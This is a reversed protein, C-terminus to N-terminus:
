TALVTKPGDRKGRQSKDGPTNLQIRIRYSSGGISSRYVFLCCRGVCVNSRNDFEQDRHQNPKPQNERFGHHKPQDELKAGLVAAGVSYM